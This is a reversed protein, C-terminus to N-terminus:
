RDGLVEELSTIAEKVDDLNPNIRYASKFARLAARPKKLRVYCQGMGAAAGFHHPNMRLTQECDAIAKHYDGLRFYLVARQNYAEAYDTVERVLDNLGKLTQKPNRRSLVEQLKEVQAESYGRFWVSWLAESALKRVQRDNDILRAALAANVAMGGILSLAFVAARRTPANPSDLLRGLTGETYYKDVKKRFRLVARAQSEEWMEEEILQCPQPLKRYFQLLRPEKVNGDEHPLRSPSSSRIADVNM